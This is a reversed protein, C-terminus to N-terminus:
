GEKHRSGPSAAGRSTAELEPLGVMGEGSRAEISGLGKLIALVWPRTFIVVLPVATTVILIVTVWTGPVWTASPMSLITAATEPILLSAGVLAVVLALYAIGLMRINSVNAVAAIRNSTAGLQNAVESIRNSEEASRTLLIDRFSGQLLLALNHLRDAQSELVPLVRGLEPFNTGLPGALEAVMSVSRGAHRRVTLLSRGTGRLADASSRASEGGKGTSPPASELRLLAQDVEEARDIITTLSAELLDVLTATIGTLKARETALGAPPAPGLLRPAAGEEIWMGRWEARGDAGLLVIPVLTSTGHRLVVPRSPPEPGAVGLARLAEAVTTVPAM